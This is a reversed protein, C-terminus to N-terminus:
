KVEKHRYQITDKERGVKMLGGPGFHELILGKDIDFRHVQIKKIELGSMVLLDGDGIFGKQILKGDSNRVGLFALDAEEMLMKGVDVLQKGKKWKEVM